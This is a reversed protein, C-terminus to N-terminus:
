SEPMLNWIAISQILDRARQWEGDQLAKSAQMIHDRTNEPPGNFVQRNAHDLLRRFSKSVAKRRAEETDLSALLPIEVLMSAVLFVAEALETNIHMHFPMQRIREAKEQEPTLTSYRQQHLGQALLEKVRQTAFIDQLTSQSEKILGCRFACLGLQVVTRNFLIQTGVDASHVNEQLHSMLMMDRATYFDNHLAHSYIHCLMARTRLLSNSTKYLSICISHVLSQAKECTQLSLSPRTTEDIDPIQELAEVVADPKYYIHELRRMLVRALAEDRAAHEFYSQSLCITKYLVKEDRLREIYETGHPDINQLSRTFEDDLRDVFSIVSGRIRVIGGEETTPSRELLEDYEFNVEEEVSYTPEHILIKVLQDLEKQAALWADNPMHSAAPNYDFRASILALLVRIRQYTTVAVTLLKELTRVQEARDTNKKGRNENVQALDKFLTEVTHQVGKGGRGVTTFEDTEGAQGAAAAGAPQAPRVERPAVPPPALAQIYDREFKEPDENYTKLLAEHEKTAKKVKQKMGNQARSNSANVKKKPDKEKTATLANEVTVLARLWYPPVPESVNTQREVLRALKDFDNSTAVWDGIRLANDISKGIAQMEEIRKDKASKVVKREDESSDDDDRGGGGGVLFTSPRPKQVAAPKDDSDDSDSDDSDSDSSSSSSSSDGATKLFQSMPTKQQVAAPKAPTDDGSSLLEEDSEESSSDTDAATKFFRSM